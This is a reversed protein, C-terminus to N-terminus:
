FFIDILKQKSCTLDNANVGREMLKPRSTKQKIHSNKKLILFPSIGRQKM